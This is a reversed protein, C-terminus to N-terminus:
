ANAQFSKRSGVPEVVSVALSLDRHILPPVRPAILRFAHPRLNFALRLSYTQMEANAIREDTNENADCVTLTGVSKSMM